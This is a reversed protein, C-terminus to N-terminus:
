LVWGQNEVKRLSFPRISARPSHLVQFRSNYKIKIHELLYNGKSAYVILTHRNHSSWM